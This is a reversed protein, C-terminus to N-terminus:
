YQSEFDRAGKITQMIQEKTADEFPICYYFDAWLTSGGLKEKLYSFERALVNSSGGKLSKAITSPSHKPPAKLMLFVYDVGTMGGLIEISDEHCREEIIKKLRKKVFEDLVPASNRTFWVVHFKFFGYARKQM